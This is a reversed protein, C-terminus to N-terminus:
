PPSLYELTMQSEEDNPFFLEIQLSQATVDEPSGFSAVMSVLNLPRNEIVYQEILVSSHLSSLTESNDLYTQLEPDSILRKFRRQSSQTEDSAHKFRRLTHPIIEDPNVMLQRLGKPHLTLEFLNDKDKSTQRWPRKGEFVAFLLADFTANTAVIEGNRLTAVAPYPDHGALMKRIVQRAPLFAPDNFEFAIRPPSLGARAYLSNQESYSLELANAIKSVAQPGPKSRGTELFSIHRQSVGSLGALSLQSLRRKQRLITLETGFNM